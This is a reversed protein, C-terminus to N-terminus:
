KIFGVVGVHREYGVGSRMVATYYYVGNFSDVKRINELNHVASNNLVVNVGECVGRSNTIFGAFGLHDGNAASRMIESILSSSLGSSVSQCTAVIKKTKLSALLNVDMELKKKYESSNLWQIHKEKAERKEVERREAQEDRKIREEQGIATEIEEFKYQESLFALNFINDRYEIFDGTNSDKLYVFESCKSLSNNVKCQFEKAQIKEMEKYNKAVFKLCASEIGRIEKSKPNIYPFKSNADIIKYYSFGLEMCNQYGGAVKNKFFKIWEKEALVKTLRSDFQWFDVEQKRVIRGNQVYGSDLIKGDDSFLIAVGEVSQRSFVGLLYTDDTNKLLGQGNPLGNRWEGFYSQNAPDINQGFCNHWREDPKDGFFSKEIKYESPCPPLKSQEAFANSFEILLAFGICFLRMLRLLYYKQFLNTFSQLNEM